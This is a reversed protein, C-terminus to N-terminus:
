ALLGHEHQRRHHAHRKHKHKYSDETVTVTYAVEEIAVEYVVGASTYTSTSIIKGAPAAEQKKPPPTIAPPAPVDYVKAPPASTPVLPLVPIDTKVNYVSIGGGYNDTAMSRAPEYSLTPVPAASSIKPPAPKGAEGPKLPNAYEPGYQIPVNGCLGKAPGACDDKALAHPMDQIKCQGQKDESQLHNNFHPCDSTLGSDNTCDTVAAQLTDVNWGMMFDAHYGYGLVTLLSPILHYSHCVLQTATVGSSNDLRARSPM